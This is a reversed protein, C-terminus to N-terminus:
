CFCQILLEISPNFHQWLTFLNSISSTQQFILPVLNLAFFSTISIWRLKPLADKIWTFYVGHVLRSQVFLATLHRKNDFRNSFNKIVSFQIICGHKSTSFARSMIKLCAWRRFYVVVHVLLLLLLQSCIEFSIPSMLKKFSLWWITM